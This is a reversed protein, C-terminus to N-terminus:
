ELEKDKNCDCFRLSCVLLLLTFSIPAMITESLNEPCVAAAAAARSDILCVQTTRSAFVALKRRTTQLTTGKNNLHLQFVSEELITLM